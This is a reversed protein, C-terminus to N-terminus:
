ILPIFEKEEPEPVYLANFLNEFLEFYLREYLSDHIQRGMEDFKQTMSETFATTRNDMETSLEEMIANKLTENIYTTLTETQQKIETQLEAKMDALLKEILEPHLKDYLEAKAQALLAEYDITNDELVVGDLIVAAGALYDDLWKLWVQIDIQSPVPVEIPQERNPTVIYYDIAQAIEQTLLIFDQMNNQMNYSKLMFVYRLLARKGEGDAFNTHTSLLKLREIYQNIYTQVRNDETLLLCPPIFDNDVAFVGDNVHFRMLPFLDGQEVEELTNIAYVYHPRVFPVGEKEFETKEDGFGVTLYYRDGFLMPITVLVDEDANVIRGSPLLAMCLFHDIEFQNKVFIGSCSFPAGPILGMRNSGLAARLALRQRFDWHEAMGQFTQATIEMGPMWNIRANIDM